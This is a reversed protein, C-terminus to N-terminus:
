GSPFLTHCTTSSQGHHSQTWELALGPGRLEIEKSDGELEREKVGHVIQCFVPRHHFSHVHPSPFCLQMQLQPYPHSHQLFSECINCTNCTACSPPSWECQILGFINARHSIMFAKHTLSSKEKQLWLCSYAIFLGVWWGELWNKFDRCATKTTDRM